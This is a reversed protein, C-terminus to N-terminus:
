SKPIKLALNNFTWDKEVQLHCSIGKFSETGSKFNDLDITLSDCPFDFKQSRPHILDALDM